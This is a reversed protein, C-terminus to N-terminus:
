ANDARWPLVGFVSASYASESHRSCLVCTLSIMDPIIGLLSFLLLFFSVRIHCVRQGSRISDCSAVCCTSPLLTRQWGGTPCQCTTSHDSLLSFSVLPLFFQRCAVEVSALVSACLALIGHGFLICQLVPTGSLVCHCLHVASLFLSFATRVLGGGVMHREHMVAAHKGYSRTTLLHSVTWSVAVEGM